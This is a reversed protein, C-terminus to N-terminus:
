EPEVKLPITLKLPVAEKPVPEIITLLVAVDVAASTASPVLAMVIVLATAILVVLLVGLRLITPLAAPMVKLPGHFKFAFVGLMPAPTSPLLTTMEPTMLLLPPKVFNL